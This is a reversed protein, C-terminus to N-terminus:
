NVKSEKSTSPGVIASSDAVTPPIIVKLKERDEVEANDDVDVYNNIWDEDFRQFVIRDSAAVQFGKRVTAKLYEVDKGENEVPLCLIKNRCIVFVRRAEM